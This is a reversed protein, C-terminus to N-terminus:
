KWEFHDDQGLSKPYETRLRELAAKDGRLYADFFAAAGNQVAEIHRPDDRTEAATGLRNGSFTMHDAGALVLLYQPAGTRIHRYPEIRRKPDMGRSSPLPNGDKTGTIHFLPIDIDRYAKQLDVRSNPLNPSLVLGARIRADKFSLYSRGVREGAAIMTSRGGYSHGAMGIQDLNLRGKFLPGDQNLKELQDLVFPVDEFRNLANRPDALSGELTHLISSRRRTKGKWLSEDSGAHQIHFCVYGHSALHRGLYAAAQRSGGLGHSFLIVPHSGTLPDPYYVLYPILRDRSEDRFSGEFVLVNQASAHLCSFFLM